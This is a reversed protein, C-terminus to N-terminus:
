YIHIKDFYRPAEAEQAAPHLPIHLHFVVGEEGPPVPGSGTINVESPM